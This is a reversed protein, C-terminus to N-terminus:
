KHLFNNMLIFAYLMVPIFFTLFLSAKLMNMMEPSGILALILTILYLAGLLIIGAIAGFRKLNM